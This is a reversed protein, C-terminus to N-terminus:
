GHTPKFKTNLRAELRDLNLQLNRLRLQHTARDSASPFLNSEYILYDKVARKANEHADKATEAGKSGVRRLGEVPMDGIVQSLHYEWDLQLARVFDTVQSLFDVSGKVSINFDTMTHLVEGRISTFFLRLLDRTEGELQTTALEDFFPNLSVRGAIFHIGLTTYPRHTQIALSKGELNRMRHPNGEDLALAANIAAELPILIATKLLKFSM